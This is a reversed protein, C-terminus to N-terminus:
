KPLPCLAPPYFSCYRLSIPIKKEHLLIVTPGALEKIIRYGYKPRKAKSDYLEKGLVPGTVYVGCHCVGGCLLVPRPEVKM